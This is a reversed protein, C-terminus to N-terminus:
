PDQKAQTAGAVPALWPERRQIWGEEIPALGNPATDLSGLRIEVPEAQLNFLRAGCHACFGRGAYASLDGGYSFAALPWNAFSPRAPNRAATAAIVPGWSWHGM